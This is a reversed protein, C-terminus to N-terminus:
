SRAYPLPEEMPVQGISRLFATAESLDVVDAYKCDVDYLSANLVAQDRDIVCDEVVVVRFDRSFADVVTARVCGSMSSGALLLTDVALGRLFIEFDTGFFVSPRRKRIIKENPRPALEPVIEAGATGEVQVTGSAHAGKWLGIDSLDPSVLGASFFVPVGATRTVDLLEQVAPLRESAMPACTAAGAPDVFDVQMDVILLAPRQGFGIRGRGSYSM